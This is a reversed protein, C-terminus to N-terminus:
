FVLLWTKSFLGKNSPFTWSTRRCPSVFCFKSIWIEVVKVIHLYLWFANSTGVCKVNVVMPVFDYQQLWLCKSQILLAYKSKFCGTSLSSLHYSIDSIFKCIPMAFTLRCRVCLCMETITKCDYTHRLSRGIRKLKASVEEFTSIIRLQFVFRTQHFWSLM